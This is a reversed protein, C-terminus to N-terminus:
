SMHYTKENRSLGNVGAGSYYADHDEPTIHRLLLRPTEIAPVGASV